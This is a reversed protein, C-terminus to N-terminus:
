TRLWAMAIQGGQVAVYANKIAIHSQLLEHELANVSTEDTIVQIAASLAHEREDAHSFVQEIETAANLIQREQHATFHQSHLWDLLIQQETVVRAYRQGVDDPM